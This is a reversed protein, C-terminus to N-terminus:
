FTGRGCGCAGCKYCAIWGCVICEQNQYSHIQTSDRCNWCASSRDKTADQLGKDPLLHRHLYESHKRKTSEIRRAAYVIEMAQRKQERQAAENKLYMERALIQAHEMAKKTLYQERWPEFLSMTSALLESGQIPKIYCRAVAAIYKELTKSRASWLFVNGSGITPSNIKEDFVLIEGDIEGVWVKSVDKMIM